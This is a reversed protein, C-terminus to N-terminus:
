ERDKKLCRPNIRVILNEDVVYEHGTIGKAIELAFEPELTIDVIRPTDIDMKRGCFPCFEFGNERPGGSDPYFAYEYGCDTMYYDTLEDEPDDYEEWRCRDNGGKKVDSSMRKGGQETVYFAPNTPKGTSTFKFIGEPGEVVHASTVNKVCIPFPKKIGKNSM